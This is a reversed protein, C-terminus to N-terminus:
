GHSTQIVNFTATASAVGHLALRIARPPFAYNTMQTGEVSAAVTNNVWEGNAPNALDVTFPDSFTHQITNLTSSSVIAGVAINCPNQGLDVIYPKSYTTGGASATITSSFTYM